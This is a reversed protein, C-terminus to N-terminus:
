PCGRSLPACMKRNSTSTTQVAPLPPRPLQLARRRGNIEGGAAAARGVGRQQARSGLSHRAGCEGTLTIVEGMSSGATANLAELLELASAVRATAQLAGLLAPLGRLPAPPGEPAEQGAAAAALLCVLLLAWRM